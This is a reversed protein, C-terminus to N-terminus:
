LAFFFVVPGNVWNKAEPWAATYGSGKRGGGALIAIYQKGKASFSFPPAKTIVGTNFHWLEKLTEDDLAVVRGDLFATFILGGATAFAGSQSEYPYSFSAVMKNTLVDVSRVLGTYGLNKTAADIRGRIGGPAKPDLMATGALRKSEGVQITTCGDIAASYSRNKTPNFAVSQWRVGGTITPCYTEPADGRLMRTEPIYTQVAKSPDYEVPKGTKPDIGKTWTVKAVYQTADMFAGNVGDLRYFFGNRGWHGIIKRPAGGVNVNYIQHVGNEDYDWGENPTYQFHWKIKGDDVNMAVISASYLNDGPRYQVDFMPQANGTGWYTLNLAPDYTGTTWLGAGGIRWAENNDKWTEHGPEGPAPVMYTRWLEAGTDPNMAHLWGRTLGDGYSNAVMIKGNVVLPAASFYEGKINVGSGKPHDTRAVLKDFMIEGTDRNVKVVRGDTLNHFVANGWVAIGRSRNSEDASVAADAKWVIQAKDNSNLDVKYIGGRGDDIYLFGDDAIGHNMLNLDPNGTLASALPLTFAVKLNAVNGRNIQDLRSFMHGEYNGYPLLWNQPEAAAGELRAKTVDAAYGPWTALLSM